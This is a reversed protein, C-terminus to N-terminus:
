SLPLMPVSKFHAGLITFLNQVDRVSIEKYLSCFGEVVVTIKFLFHAFQHSINHKTNVRMLM